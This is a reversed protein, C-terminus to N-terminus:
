PSQMIRDQRDSMPSPTLPMSTELACCALAFRSARIAATEDGCVLTGRTSIEAKVRGAVTRLRDSGAM